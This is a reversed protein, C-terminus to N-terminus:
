ANKSCTTFKTETQLRWLSPLSLIFNQDWPWNLTYINTLGEVIANRVTIELLHLPIIFAASLELNWQYLALAQDRNNNCHQLYTAFRPQSLVNPINTLQETTFTM